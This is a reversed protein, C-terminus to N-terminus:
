TRGGIAVTCTARVGHCHGGHCHGPRTARPGTLRPAPHQCAAECPTRPRIRRWHGQSSGPVTRGPRSRAVCSFGSNRSTHDAPFVISTSVSPPCMTVQLHVADGRVHSSVPGLVRRLHSGCCRGGLDSGALAVNAGLSLGRLARGAERRRPRGNWRRGRLFHDPRGPPGRPAGHPVRHGCEHGGAVGPHTVKRATVKPTDEMVAGPGPCNWPAARGPM